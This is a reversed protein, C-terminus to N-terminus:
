EVNQAQERFRELEAKGEVVAAAIKADGAKAGITNLERGIEQALFDLARGCPEKAALRARAQAVHSRLRALEEGIDAREAMMAVERLLRGDGPLAELGWEKLRAEVRARYRLPVGPARRGIARVAAELAALRGRLDAALARGEARRMRDLGRLAAQLARGVVPWAREPDGGPARTVLWGPTQLLLSAGLDDSLGLRRAAARAAEVGARALAEDVRVAERGAAESFAVALTVTVRGRHLRAQLRERIRPELAALERPLSVQVDLQRRNLSVLECDITLGRGRARGRGFGTMSHLSM